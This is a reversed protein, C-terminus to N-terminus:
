VDNSNYLLLADIFMRMNLLIHHMVQHTQRRTRNHTAATHNSFGGCVCVGASAATSCVGVCNSAGGAAESAQCLPVMFCSERIHVRRGCGELNATIHTKIWAQSDALFADIHPEQASLMPEVVVDYLYESGQTSPHWLFLVFLVKAEQYLPLRCQHHYLHRLAHSLPHQLLGDVCWYILVDLIYEATTFLALILRHVPTTHALSEVDACVLLPM